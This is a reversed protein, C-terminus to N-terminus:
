VSERERAREREWVGVCLCVFLVCRMYACIYIM